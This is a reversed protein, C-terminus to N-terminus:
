SGPIQRPRPSGQESPPWCSRPGSCDAMLQGMLNQLRALNQLRQIIQDRSLFTEREVRRLQDELRQSEAKLRNVVGKPSAKEQELQRVDRKMVSLQRNLTAIDEHLNPVGQLHAARKRIQGSASELEEPPMLMIQTDIYEIQEFCRTITLSVSPPEPPSSRCLM